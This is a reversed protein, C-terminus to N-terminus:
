KHWGLQVLREALRRTVQGDAIVFNPTNFIDMALLGALCDEAEVHDAERRLESPSWATDEQYMDSLRRNFREVIDAAERMEEALSAM